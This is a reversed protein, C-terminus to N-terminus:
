NYGVNLHRSEFWERTRKYIRKDMQVKPWFTNTEVMGILDVSYQKIFNYILKYKRERKDFGLGQINQVAVRVVKEKNSWNVDGATGGERLYAEQSEEERNTVPSVSRRTETHNQSM